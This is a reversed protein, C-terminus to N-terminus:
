WSLRGNLDITNTANNNGIDVVLKTNNFTLQQQVADVTISLCAQPDDECDVFYSYFSTPASNPSNGTLRIYIISYLSGDKENFRFAMSRSEFETNSFINQSWNVTVTGTNFITDKIAVPNLNPIYSAGIVASDNGSIILSGFNNVPLTTTGGNNSILPTSIRRGSFSGTTADDDQWTGSVDGNRNFIGSFVVTDVTGSIKSQGSSAVSGSIGADGFNDSKRLGTIGGNSDVTATWTGTDDGTFNGQYDGAFLAILNTRFSERAQVRPVMTRATGNASTINSILIQIAGDTEFVGAALTFDVSQGQAADNALGTINIGNSEDGDDDISQLFMVINQVQINNEDTAGIVLEVPTIIAQGLAEGIFVDEVFFRITEGVQYSFQGQVNTYGSTTATEFRLGSVISDIFQGRQEVPPTDGGGGGGCGTLIISTILFLFIHIYSKITM